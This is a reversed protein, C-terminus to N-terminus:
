KKQALSSRAEVRAQYKTYGDLLAHYILAGVTIGGDVTPHILDGGVLHKQTSHWRAMTGDGGMAQFTNFFACGVQLAVRHQMEVIKPIAPHTIIRGGGVTKGRDMPSVVLISVDPLASRVRRIAETLDREYRAMQNDSAYQSENTGYNFIVLDPKRHRLQEAWHQENMVTVLLGAYAGNVGLSDYVV